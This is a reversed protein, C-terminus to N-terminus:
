YYHHRHDHRHMRVSTRQADHNGPAPSPLGLASRWIGLVPRRIALVLRGEGLKPKGIGLVPRGIGLVPRGQGLMARGVWLAPRGVFYYAMAAVNGAMLSANLLNRGPLLLSASSLIGQLKGYAVLSGSCYPLPMIVTVCLQPHGAAQWVGGPLWQLITTANGNAINIIM